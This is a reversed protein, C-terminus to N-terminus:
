QQEQMNNNTHAQEFMKSIEEGTISQITIIGENSPEDVCSAGWLINALKKASATYNFRIGTDTPNHKNVFDGVWENGATVLLGSAVLGYDSDTCLAVPDATIHHELYVLDTYMTRDVLITLRRYENGDIRGDIRADLLKVFFPIKEEEEVRNISNLIFYSEQNFRQHGLVEMFHQRKELPIEILGKCFKEFKHLYLKTPISAVSKLLKLGKVTDALSQGLEESIEIANQAFDSDIFKEVTNTAELIFTQLFSVFQEVSTSPELQNEM